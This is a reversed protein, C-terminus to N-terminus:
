LWVHGHLLTDRPMSQTCVESKHPPVHPVYTNGKLIRVVSLAVHGFSLALGHVKSSPNVNVIWVKTVVKAGDLLDVTDGLNFNPM